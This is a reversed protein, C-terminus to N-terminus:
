KHKESEITGYFIFRGTYGQKKLRSSACAWPFWRQSLLDFIRVLWQVFFDVFENRIFNYLYLAASSPPRSRFLPPPRFVCCSPYESANAIHQETYASDDSRGTRYCHNHKPNVRVRSPIGVSHPPSFLSPSFLQREAKPWCRTAYRARTRARRREPSRSFAPSRGPSDQFTVFSVQVGDFLRTGKPMKAANREFRPNNRRPRSEGITGKHVVHVSQVNWFEYTIEYRWNEDNIAIITSQQAM